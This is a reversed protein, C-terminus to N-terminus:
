AAVEVIPRARRHKIAEYVFKIASELEAVTCADLQADHVEMGTNIAQLEPGTFLFRGRAVGRKAMTYIADQAAKVEAAYQKGLDPNVIHLAEAMNMAAILVDVQQKDGDGQTVDFLAQHNKIKLGIAEKHSSMPKFGNIVWAVPDAFVQRPRYKSRKRM